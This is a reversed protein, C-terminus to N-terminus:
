RPWLWAFVAGTALGYVLGDILRTVVSRPTSQFWIANPLFAFTHALIGATGLVRFVRAFSEGRQLTLSGLYAIITAAVTFSLVTLLLNVGMNARRFVVLIGAPGEEFRRRFEPSRSQADTAAWPFLYSGPPLGLGKVAGTLPGDDKLPTWDGRHFPTAAWLIFSCFFGAVGAAVIALWLDLISM